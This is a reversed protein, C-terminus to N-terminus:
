RHIVVTTTDHSILVNAIQKNILRWLEEADMGRCRCEELLAKKNHLKKCWYTPNDNRSFYIRAAQQK